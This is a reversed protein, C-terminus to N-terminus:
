DLIMAAIVTLALAGGLVKPLAWSSINEAFPRQEAEISTCEPEYEVFYSAKTRTPPKPQRKKFFVVIEMLIISFSVFVLFYFAIRFCDEEVNM